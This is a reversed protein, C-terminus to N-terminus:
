QSKISEVIETMQRLSNRAIATVQGTYDLIRHFTMQEKLEDEITLTLKRTSEAMERLAEIDKETAGSQGVVSDIRVKTVIIGILTTAIIAVGAVLGRREQTHTDNAIRM